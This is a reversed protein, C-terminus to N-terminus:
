TSPSWTCWAPESTAGSRSRNSKVCEPMNVWSCSSLTERETFSATFLGLPLGIALGIAYGIVLRRLTVTCATLLTGDRAASVFYDWVSDPSPLLVPSWIKAHVMVTWIAILGIFFLIALLARRM